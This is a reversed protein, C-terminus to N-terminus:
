PRSVSVTRTEGEPLILRVVEPDLRTFVDFRQVRVSVSKADAEAKIRWGGYGGAQYAESEDDDEFNETTFAGSGTPPFIM